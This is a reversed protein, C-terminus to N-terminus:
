AHCLQMARGKQGSAQLAAVETAVQQAVSLRQQKGYKPQEPAKTQVTAHPCFLSAQVPSSPDHLCLLSGELAGRSALAVVGSGFAPM